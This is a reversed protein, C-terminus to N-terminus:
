PGFMKQSMEDLQDMAKDLAAQVRVRDAEPMDIVIPVSGNLRPAAAPVSPVSPPAILAPPPPLIPPPPVPQPRWEPSIRSPYKGGIPQAKTAEVEAGAEVDRRVRQWVRLAANGTLEHGGRGKVGDIAMEAVLAAWSHEERALSAAVDIHYARLWCYVAGRAVYGRVRRKRFLRPIAAQTM